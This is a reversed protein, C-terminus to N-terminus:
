SREVTYWSVACYWSQGDCTWKWGGYWAVNWHAFIWKNCSNLPIDLFVAGNWAIWFRVIPPRASNSKAFVFYMNLTYLVIYLHDCLIVQGFLTRSSWHTIHEPEPDAINTSTFSRARLLKGYSSYLLILKFIKIARSRGMNYRYLPKNTLHRNLVNYM